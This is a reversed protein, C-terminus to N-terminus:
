IGAIIVYIFNLSVLVFPSEKHIQIDTVLCVCLIILNWMWYIARNGTDVKRGRITDTQKRWSNGLCFHSM